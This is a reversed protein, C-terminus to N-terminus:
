FPLVNRLHDPGRMVEGGLYGTWGVFAAAALIGAVAAWRSWSTRSIPGVVSLVQLAAAGILIWPVISGMEEHAEVREHLADTKVGLAEEAEEGTLM